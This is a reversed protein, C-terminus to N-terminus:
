SWAEQGYGHLSTLEHDKSFARTQEAWLLCLASWAEWQELGSSCSQAAVHHGALREVPQRQFKSGPDWTFHAGWPLRPQGTQLRGAVTNKDWLPLVCSHCDSSWVQALSTIGHALLGM